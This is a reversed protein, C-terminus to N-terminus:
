AITFGQQELSQKVNKINQLAKDDDGHLCLSDIWGENALRIAQETILSPNHIVANKQSRPTLQGNALYTRDAFGEAVVQLGARIGAHHLSGKALTYLVMKPAYKMLASAFAEALAEDRACRNYLAGHPKIHYPIIKEQNAIKQFISLQDFVSDLIENLPLNLEIRGFGQRDAYSPHAGIKVGKRASYAILSKMVVEDGAHGGCAINASSVLELIAQDKELKNIYNADNHSYEGMDANLDIISRKIRM